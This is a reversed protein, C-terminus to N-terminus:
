RVKLLFEVLKVPRDRFGFGTTNPWSVQMVSDYWFPPPKIYCVVTIVLNRPRISYLFFLICTIEPHSFACDRGGGIRLKLASSAIFSHPIRLWWFILHMAVPSAAICTYDQLASWSHSIHQVLSPSSHFSHRGAVHSNSKPMCACIPLNGYVCKYVGSIIKAICVDFM